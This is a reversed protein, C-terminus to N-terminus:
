FKFRRKFNYWKRPIVIEEVPENSKKIAWEAGACFVERLTGESVNFLEKLKMYEAIREKNLKPDDYIDSIEM